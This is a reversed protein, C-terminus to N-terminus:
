IQRFMQSPIFMKTQCRNDIIMIRVSRLGCPNPSFLLLPQNHNMDQKLAIKYIRVYKTKLRVKYSVLRKM